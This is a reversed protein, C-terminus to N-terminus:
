LVRTKHKTSKSCMGKFTLPFLFFWTLDDIIGWTKKEKESMANCKTTKKWMLHKLLPFGSHSCVINIKKICLIFIFLFLEWRTNPPAKWDSDSSDSSSGSSSSSGSDSSSSSGSLHSAGTGSGAGKEPFLSYSSWAHSTALRIVYRHLHPAFALSLYKRLHTDYRM